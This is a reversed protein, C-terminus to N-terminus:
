CSDVRCTDCIWVFIKKKCTCPPLTDYFNDQKEETDLGYKEHIKKRIDACGCIYDLWETVPCDKMYDYHVQEYTIERDKPNFFEDCESCKRLRYGLLPVGRTM